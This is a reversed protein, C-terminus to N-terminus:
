AEKANPIKSVPDLSDIFHIMSPTALHPSVGEIICTISEKCEIEFLEFAFPRFGHMPLLVMVIVITGFIIPVLLSSQGNLLEMSSM